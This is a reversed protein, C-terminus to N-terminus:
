LWTAHEYCLDALEIARDRSPIYKAFDVILHGRDRFGMPFAYILELIDRPLGLNKPDQITRTDSADLEQYSVQKLICPATSLLPVFM